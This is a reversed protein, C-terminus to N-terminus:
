YSSIDIKIFIFFLKINVRMINTLTHSKDQFEEAVKRLNSTLNYLDNAEPHYVNLIKEHKLGIRLDKLIIKLIWKM